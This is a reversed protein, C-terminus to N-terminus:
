LVQIKGKWAEEWRKRMEEPSSQSLAVQYKRNFDSMNIRRAKEMVLELSLYRYHLLKLYKNDSVVVRGAVSKPSHGGCNLELLCDERLVCCKSYMPNPRGEQIIDTLLTHGDDTPVNRSVMDFGETQLLTIGKQDSLDFLNLIDPHWIFEDIDVIIKWGPGTKRYEFNKMEILQDDRLEGGTDWNHVTVKPHRELIERSSDTSGNDWVIIEDAFAYHRLFFPIIHEENKLWTLVTVKSGNPTMGLRKGSTRGEM